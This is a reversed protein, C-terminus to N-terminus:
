DIPISEVKREAHPADLRELYHDILARLTLLAERILAALRDQLDAPAALRLADLLIFLAAPDPPQQPPQRGAGNGAPGEGHLDDNDAAQRPDSM